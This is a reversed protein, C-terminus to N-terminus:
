RNRALVGLLSASFRMTLRSTMVHLSKAHEPKLGTIICEKGMVKLSQLLSEWEDLGKEDIRDVATFDVLVTEAKFNHINELLPDRIAVVKEKTLDGFLPILVQQQNLQICPASLLRVRELLKLTLEKEQFLDYDTERLRNQLHRLQKSIGSLEDMKPVIIVSLSFDSDWKGYVDALIRKADKTILNSEFKIPAKQAKLLNVAKALSGEDVIDKLATFDGFLSSAEDSCSIVSLSNNLQLAPLPLGDFQYGTNM